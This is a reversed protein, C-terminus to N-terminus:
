KKIWVSSIQIPPQHRQNPNGMVGSATWGERLEGLERLWPIHARPGPFAQGSGPASQNFPRETFREWFAFMISIRREGLKSVCQQGPCGGGPIVGHYQDGKFMALRNKRPFASWGQAALGGGRVQDTLLTAGGVEGGTLYLATSVVPHRIGGRGEDESDYHLQHGFAHPRCHAWWEVQQAQAAEPFAEVALQHIYRIVQDLSSAPDGELRHAYSFFGPQSVRTENGMCSYGHAQWFPAGVGFVHNMLSLLSEPLAGDVIRLRRPHLDESQESPPSFALSQASTAHYAEDQMHRLVGPSLGYLTGNFAKSKGYWLQLAAHMASAAENEPAQKNAVGALLEAEHIDGEDFYAQSSSLLSAVTCGHVDLFARSVADLEEPHQLAAGDEELLTLCDTADAVENSLGLTRHLARLISHWAANAPDALRVVHAEALGAAYVQIDISQKPRPQLLGGDHDETSTARVDVGASCLSSLAVVLVACECRMRARRQVIV